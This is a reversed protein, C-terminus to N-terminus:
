TGLQKDVHVLSHPHCLFFSPLPVKRNLGARGLLYSYYYECEGTMGNVGNHWCHNDQCHRLRTITLAFTGIMLRLTSGVPPDSEVWADVEGQYEPLVELADPLPPVCVSMSIDDIGGWIPAQFCRCFSDNYEAVTAQAAVCAEASVVETLVAVSSAPAACRYWYSHRFDCVFEESRYFKCVM